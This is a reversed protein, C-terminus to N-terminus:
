SSSIFMSFFVGVICNKKNQFTEMAVILNEISLAIACKQIKEAKEVTLGQITGTYVFHVVAFMTEFDADKVEM